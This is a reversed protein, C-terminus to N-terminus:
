ESEGGSEGEAETPAEAGEAAEEEEESRAASVQAVPLDLHAGHSLAVSEVGEPLKIDSLHLMQHLHVDLMDVEIYEPLNAPLCSVEIDTVYHSIAGGEVKVGPCQAENLFHLPVHVVINKNPDIRQFDAHMIADKAPHRQMDKIIAPQDTGDVKLTIISSFFAENEQLKYIEKHLVSIATPEQNYGYVIAPVKGELRRLRRSAGKGQDNRTEANLALQASM